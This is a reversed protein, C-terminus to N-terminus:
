RKRKSPKSTKGMMKKPKNMPEVRPMLQPIPLNHNMQETPMIPATSFGRLNGVPHFRNAFSYETGSPLKEIDM